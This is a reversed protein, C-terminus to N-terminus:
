IGFTTAAKAQKYYDQAAKTDGKKTMIDGMTKLANPNKSESLELAKEVAITAKDINGNALYALALESLINSKVVKNKGAILTGENLYSIANDLKNLKRSSLGFFYFATPENPFYDIAEESKLSLSKYDGVELYAYMLQEWVNYINDNIDLTKNYSKIADTTNGSLFFIDGQLAHGKAEKPHIALLRHSLEVLASVLEPGTDPAGIKKVYPILELIKNDLPIDKNEIIPALARLYNGENEINEATGMMAINAKTDNVDVALIKEYILKATSKDDLREHYEALKHLATLNDPYVEVLKELETIALKSKGMLDYLEFKRRSVDQTIGIHKELKNYVNIADTSAGQKILATALKDNYKESSPEVNVIQKLSSAAESYKELRMCIDSHKELIFINGSANDAAIKAYKFEQLPDDLQEYLLALELAIAPNNRKEKYLDKLIEESKDPRNLLLYGKAEIFKDQYIIDQESMRDSDALQAHSYIAM